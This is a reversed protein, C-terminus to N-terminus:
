VTADQWNLNSRMRFTFFFVNQEHAKKNYYYKKKIKLM